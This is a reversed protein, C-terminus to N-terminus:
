PPLIYAAGRHRLWAESFPGAPYSRLVEDPPAAPDAVQVLDPGAAYVVVLHGSTEPLPTDPLEGEAFRISTVLPIGRALVTLPEHWDAFCEVAGISGRRAAAQIALPWVGYMGTVPDLCEAALDLPEHPRKWAGLVISVCTPSCIRQAIEPPAVLQSRPPPADAMAACHEPMPPAAVTFARASVALLYRQPPAPATLELSLTVASLSRHIRFCDIHTSVQSAKRGPPTARDGPVRQLSWHDGNADLTFQFSTTSGAPAADPFALSPVLLTGPALDPLPLRVRWSGGEHQWDAGAAVPLPYRRATEPDALRQTPIAHMSQLWGSM